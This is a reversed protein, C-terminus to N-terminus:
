NERPDIFRFYDKAKIRWQKESSGNIQKCEIETSLRFLKRFDDSEFESGVGFVVADIELIAVENQAFWILCYNSYPSYNFSKTAKNLERGSSFTVEVIHEDSWGDETEYSVKCLRRVEANLALPIIQLILIFVLIRMFSEM